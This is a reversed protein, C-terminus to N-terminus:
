NFIKDKINEHMETDFEIINQQDYLNLQDMLDFGITPIFISIALIANAPFIIHMIPLHLTMQLSRIMIFTVRIARDGKAFIFLLISFILMGILLDNLDYSSAQYQKHAISPEM